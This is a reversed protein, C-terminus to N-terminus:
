TPSSVDSPWATDDEGHYGILNRLYLEMQLIAIWPWLDKCPIFYYSRSFLIFCFLITFYHFYNYFSPIIAYFLLTKPINCFLTSHLYLQCDKDVYYRFKYIITFKVGFQIAVFVLISVKDIQQNVMRKSKCEIEMLYKRM